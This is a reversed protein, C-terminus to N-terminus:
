EEEADVAEEVIEEELIDTPEEVVEEADAANVTEAIVEPASKEVKELIDIAEKRYEGYQNTPEEQYNNAMAKNIADKYINVSM